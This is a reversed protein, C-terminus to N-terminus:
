SGCNDSKKEVQEMHSKTVAQKLFKNADKSEEVFVILSDYPEIPLDQFNNVKKGNLYAETESYNIPHKLNTFLDKWTANVRHVHVVDGVYDHLHAKEIQEEEATHESNEEEGCPKTHMYKISSFDELKNNNIVIFGAHYHIPKPPFYKNKLMLGFWIVIAIFIPIVIYLLKGTSNASSNSDSGM